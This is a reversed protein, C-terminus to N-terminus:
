VMRSLFIDSLHKGIRVKSYQSMVSLFRLLPTPALRGNGPLPETFVAQFGSYRLRLLRENGALPQTLIKGATFDSIITM